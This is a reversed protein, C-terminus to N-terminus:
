VWERSPSVSAGLSRLTDNNSPGPNPELREGLGGGRSGAPTRPQTPASSPCAFSRAPGLMRRGGRGWLVEPQQHHGPPQHADPLGAVGGDRGGDDAVEEGLVRAREHQGDEVEGDRQAPSPGPSTGELKSWAEGQPKTRLSRFMRPPPPLRPAVSARSELRSAPRNPCTPLPGAGHVTLM